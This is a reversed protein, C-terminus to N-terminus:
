SVFRCKLVFLIVFLPLSSRRNGGSGCPVVAAHGTDFKSSPSLPVRTRVAQGLSNGLLPVSPSRVRSRETAIGVGYCWWAVCHATSFSCCKNGPLDVM